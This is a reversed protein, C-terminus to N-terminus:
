SPSARQLRGRLSWSTPSSSCPTGSEPSRGSLTWSRARGRVIDDRSLLPTAGPISPAIGGSFFRFSGRSCFPRRSANRCRTSFANKCKFRHRPIAAHCAFFAADKTAAACIRRMARQGLTEQRCSRVFPRSATLISPAPFLSHFACVRREGPFIGTCFERLLPSTPGPRRRAAKRPM